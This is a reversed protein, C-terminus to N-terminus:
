KKKRSREWEIFWDPRLLRLYREHKPPLFIKWHYTTLPAVGLLRALEERSGNVKSLAFETEM